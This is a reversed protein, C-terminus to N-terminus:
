FLGSDPNTLISEVCNKQLSGQILTQWSAKLVTNKFTEQFLTPWFAKLVINWLNGSDHNILIREDCNKERFNRSDPNTLISKVCHKKLTEHSLIPWSAKLVINQLTEQIVTPWSAKLLTTKWFICWVINLYFELSLLETKDSTYM